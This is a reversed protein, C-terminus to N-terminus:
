RGLKLGRARMPRSGKITIAHEDGYAIAGESGFTIVVWELSEGAVTRGRHFPADLFRGPLDGVSGVLVRAPRLGVTLPPVHALVPVTAALEALLPTLAPDASRVYCLDAGFPLLSAPLPVRARALNVITREGDAELLLLSRTTEEADRATAGTDVGAAELQELLWRGAADESVASLLLPRDGARALAMASNAAGGGIRNAEAHGQNHGGVQLPHALTVLQDM